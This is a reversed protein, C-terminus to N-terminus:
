GKFGTTAIGEVVYRQAFVFFLFAPVLSLVSMAFLPGFSSEGMSDMFSQLALPVTFLQIDNLYILQAFFDDWTWVFSFIATTILAPKTSPLIVYWYIQWKNAGDLIAAEDLERPIGRIFQVNLFVFFGATAFFKPVTIPLISNVWGLYQFMIYEPIVTVFGPMMITLLMLAFMTRKFRFNIRAFAYATLSSSLVTGVVVIACMVLSNQFFRAFTVGLASWGHVYNDLSPDAPILGADAFIAAQDKLSASLLWLLPYCMAVAGLLLVAHLLMRQRVSYEDMM